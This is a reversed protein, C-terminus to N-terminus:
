WAPILYIIIGDTLLHFSLGKQIRQSVLLFRAYYAEQREREKKWNTIIKIKLAATVPRASLCQPLEKSHHRVPPQNIPTSHTHWQPLWWNDTQDTTKLVCDRLWFLNQSLLFGTVGEWFFPTLIMILCVTNENLNGESILCVFWWVCWKSCHRPLLQPDPSKSLPKM